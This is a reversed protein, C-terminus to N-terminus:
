RAPGLYKDFWELVERVLGRFDNPVHGGELSVLRKHEPATGILEIIRQQGELPAQFDDRGNILLLPVKV